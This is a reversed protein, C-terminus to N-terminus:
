KTVNDLRRTFIKINGQEDKNIMMRFGDYKYECTFTMNEFRQLVESIGKTPHALM